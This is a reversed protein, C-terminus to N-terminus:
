SVLKLNSIIAPKIPIVKDGMNVFSVDSKPTSEMLTSNLEINRKTQNIDRINHFLGQTYNKGRGSAMGQTTLVPAPMSVTWKKGSINSVVEIKKVTEGNNAQPMLEIENQVLSKQALKVGPGHSLMNSSWAQLSEPQNTGVKSDASSNGKLTIHLKSVFREPESKNAAVTSALAQVDVLKTVDTIRGREVNTQQLDARALTVSQINQAGGTQTATSIPEGQTHLSPTQAGKAEGGPQVSAAGSAGHGPDVPSPEVGPQQSGQSTHVGSSQPQSGGRENRTYGVTQGDVDVRANRYGPNGDIKANGASTIVRQPAAVEPWKKVGGTQVGQEEGTPMSTSISEGETQLSPTQTGKAEGGPQASAVDSAGHGPDVPTGAKALSAPEGQPNHGQAVQPRGDDEGGQTGQAGGTQTATSIPEGQTHLGPTQAGKAEGGPQASAAGSAGHGPDVPTGAKALSAPEGQPNHGQAVQPRGDDEGGQTGQAGGTQTATSIPEGQTHLSPTQAGKAEGGPQASAVDSAGHGPDVPTGAKALSAPEGQPNHGQAVQPRGDDEGGQTGQAGGTQTATSIPEGQTHLSPTQAGKAEGGPQVSAAGSAGHGPDVPSPEVGPQQSGQSTHVGSSQPQSGGRENRTYGVTQGDVDVRANRYGPNGDIKANGASTIVRQPAAVEPWKKVGGTQVGQEEGTPMSTSISEGETQLSPTQTGKAEGGPQASAVDSAGHGPDVPTGAKALSAPEGQPNHGQAVQPRGDDEGGQTGQAGGTQTATSIPEGQTHLGPTQAGKAEGGPQASAAGSAGHGPDVPTGAKALSAPEGQPNHGQAVQPRGDDEGGQTGQAGGTQTATSIPEGQTHLSPTQAGKAEGGPQVSAAGSAGHGPDVPSPEVGPQQSGQSTHVGSSQPQSGGRENRTYGVTQGDVDVRANRYGPNGDIKANGASTIVRQPAAVEPWKKVGGTQVGQEEGTPMSTSISEGETQLSPTQTGKAEGGPQASAVDSAGHGPDVPTGAKALSAPEGQPNHGQAVQPRGDDEGGQTGQAGGTQTATSIPEGQTHLGPTQAGKAEGGPQASAAGSAGHGPDVPTGAKALSAPEGQPNHGQAVQPRGDDEGGQTGQAGGTQTATSIPEGQTHLGPTQAGKAEGGPQASAAGSAGHGPDVPTGAKALSAPEGQPNHGQAVQPRGDDEGGQTGQAGGTQTATSIPEGQTHLSPTQAGKAEGGPQASAVDSAGHGPDVPTGAKALSAPEGQPNHGQAVQPRGDDEGGQTGQAGGTQTATSIPEGQTHLSPTQAGKAEGGPQVSAAGSAGHGPDVPSPEVGPQQSGQSTHVGSSQPQSGGRENRTYGVTQGDVDVRANRYGPNGDIKANGASTIVRQPAAVEPWKKVGGTQVGQEEGTPMSTSISEGETQLSPTQTGKAEGGPQASAVDSAGHGPDVPTGAKALSAPEGQPNHGQAVQPRGDDEGGQTGQAGGTQTATSIPEGQTHLGPTQAGKAEGGPQASAAGSAGHGPDVPSPEVSPQQSGQLTHVGSSQPQSGSRENRTYGVTQGDVDVRANRYGPNGDIKANGASTIVRQPAAVEPWKKVGGTQVGQEEGTPMSTSIPEGQTHLSPTQAGKAEGGPQASAAGSAGHGPDVPSPEVSPQQSGQLTHVGSSQPQSGGRENRTYGVTQGDVDVRANRYGPNGDIKANGASTIVRQPAAVEPWKKVGGTQVGQEEGTPMSTSISEGETQLSPTQTGKAEGGPQASAVDSAGHGPDVPTGAKALSAPEGQPNHGQAVQPRGDDEGGQTGQAGGTQTATSIPEGQTHLSPTQAGKAEGGPQASAAGSAGHGPDVPSPEVSPQQSGQLTHVGSSQPQSGGRENRTYGVTQGDVDVRANRYGPNGDIKANGSTTILRHAPKVEPWQKKAKEVCVEAKIPDTQKQEDTDPIGGIYAKHGSEFSVQILKAENTQEHFSVLADIMEDVKSEPGILPEQERLERILVDKTIEEVNIVPNGGFKEITQEILTPSSDTDAQNTKDTNNQTNFQTNNQTNFQNFNLDGFNFNFVPSYNFTDGKGRSGKEELEPERRGNVEDLGRFEQARIPRPSVPVSIEPQKNEEPQKNAEPDKKDDIQNNPGKQGLVFESGGYMALASANGFLVVFATPLLSLGGTFPALVAGLTTAGAIAALHGKAKTHNSYKNSKKHVKKKKEAQEKKVEPQQSSSEENELCSDSPSLAQPLQHENVNPQIDVRPLASASTQLSIGSLEQQVPATTTTINNLSINYAM